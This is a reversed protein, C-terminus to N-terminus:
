FMMHVFASKEEVHGGLFTVVRVRYEKSGDGSETWRWNLRGGDVMWEDIPRGLIGEVDGSTMGVLIRKFATDSYSRAYKTHDGLFLLRLSGDFGDLTCAEIAGVLAFGLLLSILIGSRWIAKPSLLRVAIFVVAAVLVFDPSARITWQLWSRHDPLAAMVAVWGLTAALSLLVRACTSQRWDALAYYVTAGVAWMPLGFTVGLFIVGRVM